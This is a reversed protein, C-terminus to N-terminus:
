PEDRAVASRAPSSLGARNTGGPGCREASRAPSAPGLRIAEAKGQHGQKERINHYGFVLLISKLNLGTGPGRAFSTFSTEPYLLVTGLRSICTRTCLGPGPVSVIFNDDSMDARIEPGVYESILFAVIHALFEFFQESPLTTALGIDTKSLYGEFWGYRFRGYFM